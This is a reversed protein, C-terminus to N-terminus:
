ANKKVVVAKILMFIGFILILVASFTWVAFYMPITDMGIIGAPLRLISQAAVFFLIVAAAYGAAAPIILQYILSNGIKKNSFGVARLIRFDKAGQNRIIIGMLLMIIFYLLGIVVTVIVIPLSLGAVIYSANRVMPFFDFDTYEKRMSEAFAYVDAGDNLVISYYGSISNNFYEKIDEVTFRIIDGYGKYSPYIGVVECANERSGKRLYINDGVKINHKRAFGIGVAAEGHNEPNRGKTMIYDMKEPFNKDYVDATVVNYLSSKDTRFLVNDSIAAYYFDVRDDNELMKLLGSKEEDVANKRYIYVDMEAMGWRALHQPSVRVSELINFATILILSSLLTILCVLGGRYINNKIKLFAYSLDANKGSIKHGSVPLKEDATEGKILSYLSFGDLKSLYRNTAAAVLLPVILAAAAIEFYVAYLSFDAGGSLAFMRGFYVTCFVASLIAGALGSALPKIAMGAIYAKKVASKTCGLGRLKGILRSDDKLQMKVSLLCVTLSIIVSFVSLVAFIASVPMYRFIFNNRIDEYDTIIGTFEKNFFKKYGYAFQEKIDAASTKATIYFNGRVGSEKIFNIDDDSLWFYPIYNNESQNVVDTVTESVVFELEKGGITLSVAEGIIAGNVAGNVIVKGSEAAYRDSKGVFAFDMVKEGVTARSALYVEGVSFDSIYGLNKLFMELESRLAEEEKLNITTNYTDFSTWVKDFSPKLSFSGALMGVVAFATVLSCVSLIVGSARGNKVFLKMIFNYENKM